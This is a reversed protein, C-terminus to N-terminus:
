SVLPPATPIPVFNSSLVPHISCTSMTGASVMLADTTLLQLITNNLLLNSPMQHGLPLRVSRTQCPCQNHRTSYRDENATNPCWHAADHVDYPASTHLTNSTALQHKDRFSIAWIRKTRLYSRHPARAGTVGHMPIPARDDYQFMHSLRAATCTHM